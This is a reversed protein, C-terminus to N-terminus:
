GLFPAGSRTMLFIMAVLLAASAAIVPRVLAPRRELLLAVTIPIPFLVITYRNMSTVSGSALVVALTVAVLLLLAWDRMMLWHVAVAAVVLTSLLWMTLVVQSPEFPHEVVGRAATGVEKWVGEGRGPWHRQVSAFAVPDGTRRWLFAMFALVGSLSVLGLGAATLWARPGLRGRNALVYAGVVVLALLAGPSRTASAVGAVLAAWWWRGRDVLTLVGVSTLLFLAETYMMAFYLSFPNAATLAVTWRAARVGYRRQTFAYLVVLALMFAAISVVVAAVALPVGPETVARVALPYAPFFAVNSQSRVPGAHYGDLVISTYWAGDWATIFGEPDVRDRNVWQAVLVAAAVLTLWGAGILLPYGVRSRLAM